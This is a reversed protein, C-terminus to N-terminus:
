RRGTITTESYIELGPINRTGARVVASIKKEDLMFWMRPVDSEKKLRWKWVTRKGASGGYNGSMSQATPPAPEPADAAEELVQGAEQAADAITKGAEDGRGEEELQKAAAAAAEEIRGAEAIAEDELRKREAEAAERAKGTPDDGLVDDGVEAQAMAQRMADDPRTVTDSRLDITM